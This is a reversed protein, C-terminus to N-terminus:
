HYYIYTFENKIKYCHVSQLEVTILAKHDKLTEVLLRVDRADRNLTILDVQTGNTLDIPTEIHIHIYRFVSQNTSNMRLGVFKPVKRIRLVYM